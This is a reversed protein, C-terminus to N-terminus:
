EYDPPDIHKMFFDTLDGSSSLVTRSALGDVIAWEAAFSGSADGFLGRFSCNKDDVCKGGFYRIKSTYQLPRGGWADYMDSADLFYKRGNFSVSIAKVYTKPLGSGVGFFPIRENIRCFSSNAFCGEVRFHGDGFPAEVISVEVGSPLIFKSNTDAFAKASCLLSGYIIIRAISM